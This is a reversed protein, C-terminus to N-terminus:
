LREEIGVEGVEGAEGLWPMPSTSYSILASCFTQARATHTTKGKTKCTRETQSRGRLSLIPSAEQDFSSRRPMRLSSPTLLSPDLPPISISISLAPCCPCRTRTVLEFSSVRSHSSDGHTELRGALLRRPRAFGDGLNSIRSESTASKIKSVFHTTGLRM